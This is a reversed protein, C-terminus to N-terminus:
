SWILEQERRSFTQRWLSELVEPNLRDGVRECDITAVIIQQYYRKLQLDNGVTAVHQAVQDPTQQALKEFFDM